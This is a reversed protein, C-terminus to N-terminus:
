RRLTIIGQRELEHFAAMAADLAISARESLAGITSEGDIHELLARADRALEFWELDDRAVALSPVTEAGVSGLSHMTGSTLGAHYQPMGPPPPATPRASVPEVDLPIRSDSERAFELPDFPPRVTTSAHAEDSAAVQELPKARQESMAWSQPLIASASESGLKRKAGVGPGERGREGGKSM